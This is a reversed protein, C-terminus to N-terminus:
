GINPYLRGNQEPTHIEVAPIVVQVVTSPRQVEQQRRIPAVPRVMRKKTNFVEPTKPPRGKVTELRRLAYILNRQDEGFHRTVAAGVESAVEEVKALDIELERSAPAFDLNHWVYDWAFDADDKCQKAAKIEEYQVKVMGATFPVLAKPFLGNMITTGASHDAVFFRKLLVIAAREERTWTHGQPKFAVNFQTGTILVEDEDHYAAALNGQFNSIKKKSSTKKVTKQIKSSPGSNPPTLLGFQAVPTKQKYSRQPTQRQPTRPAPVRRLLDSRLIVPEDAPYGVEDNGRSNDIEIIGRSLRPRPPRLTSTDTASIFTTEASVTRSRTVRGHVVVEKSAKSGKRKPIARRAAPLKRKPAM